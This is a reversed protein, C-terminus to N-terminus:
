PSAAPLSGSNKSGTEVPLSNSTWETIGGAYVLLKSAPVGADRLFNAALESDECNGGNCYLLIQQALQCAPLITPLSNAPHYYDFQYAGPIHGAQYHEDNRADIFIVLGQLYANTHFLQRAQITDVLQLGKESLRAALQDQPSQSRPTTTGSSLVTTPAPFYNRALELGRPSLANAALALLGGIALVCLSELLTPKV